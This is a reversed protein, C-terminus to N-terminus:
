LLELFSEMAQRSKEPQPGGRALADGDIALFPIGAKASPPACCRSRASATAAVGTTSTCWGMSRSNSPWPWTSAPGGPRPAGCARQRHPAQGSRPLSRRPRRDGPADAGDGRLAGHRRTRADPRHHESDHHPFTHLWLLKKLPRGDRPRPPWSTAAAADPSCGSSTGPAKRTGWLLQGLFVMAFTERGDMELRGALRETMIHGWAASARNSLEIAKRLNPSADPGAASTRTCCACSSPWTPWWRPRPERGRRAAAPCPDRPLARRPPRGADGAPVGQGSLSPTTDLCMSPRRSCATRSRPWPSATTAASTAPWLCAPPRPRWLSARRRHRHPRRRRDRPDPPHHRLLGPARHPVPVVGLPRDRRAQLSRALRLDRAPVHLAPRHARQASPLPHPGPLAARAHALRQPLRGTADNLEPM